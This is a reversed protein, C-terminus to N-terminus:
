AVAQEAVIDQEDARRMSALTEYMRGLVIVGSAFTLGAIVAIAWTMGFADALVGALLAGIAYGGDRL